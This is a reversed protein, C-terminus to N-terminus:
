WAPDTAEANPSSWHNCSSYSVSHAHPIPLRVEWITGKLAKAASSRRQDGVRESRSLSFISAGSRSGATTPRCSQSRTSPTSIMALRARRTPCEGLGDVMEKRVQQGWDVAHIGLLEKAERRGIELVTLPPREEPDPLLEDADSLGNLWAPIDTSAPAGAAGFHDVVCYHRKHM